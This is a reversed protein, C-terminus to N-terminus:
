AAKQDKKILKHEVKDAVKETFLHELGRAKIMAILAEDSTEGSIYDVLKFTAKGSDKIVKWEDDTMGKIQTHHIIRAQAFAFAVLQSVSAGECDFTLEYRGRTPSTAQSYTVKGIIDNAEM